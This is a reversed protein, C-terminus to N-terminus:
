PRSRATGSYVLVPLAAISWSPCHREFVLFPCHREFVLFPCHRKMVLVSLAAEHGPRATGSQYVSVPLAARICRCPCHQVHLPLVPLAACAIAPRATGSYRERRGQQHVGERRGQQHVGGQSCGDGYQRGYGSAVRAGGALTRCFLCLARPSRGQGPLLPEARRRRREQGHSRCMLARTM